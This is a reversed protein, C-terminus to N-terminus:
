TLVITPVKTRNSTRWPRLVEHSLPELKAGNMGKGKAGDYVKVIM